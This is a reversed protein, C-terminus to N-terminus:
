SLAYALLCDLELCEFEPHLCSALPDALVAQEDAVALREWEAHNCHGLHDGKLHLLLVDHAEQVWLEDFTKDELRSGLGLPEHLPLLTQLLSGSLYVAHLRLYEACLFVLRFCLCQVPLFFACPLRVACDGVECGLDLLVSCDRCDGPRRLQFSIRRSVQVSAVDIPM